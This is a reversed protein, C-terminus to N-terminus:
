TAQRQIEELRNKIETTDLGHKENYQLALWLQKEELGKIRQYLTRDFEKDIDNEERLICFYIMFVAISGLAVYPEYWLRETATGMRSSKAQWQSAASKTYAIPKDTETNTEEVKTTSYKVNSTLIRSCTSYNIPLAKRLSTIRIFSM